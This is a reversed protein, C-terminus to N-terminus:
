ARAGCSNIRHELTWNIRHELAQFSCSSFGMSYLRCTVGVSGVHGLAWAGCYSLGSCHSARAGSCSSLLGPESCSSLLGPEGCSSFLGFLLSSGAAGFFLGPMKHILSSLFSFHSRLLLACHFSKKLIDFPFFFLGKIRYEFFISIFASYFRTRIFWCQLFQGAAKGKLRTLNNPAPFLHQISVSRWLTFLM